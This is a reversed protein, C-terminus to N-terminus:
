LPIFEKYMQPSLVCFSTYICKYCIDFKGSGRGTSIGWSNKDLLTSAWSPMSSKRTLYWHIFELQLVLNDNINKEELYTWVNIRNVMIIPIHEQNDSSSELLGRSPFKHEQFVEPKHFLINHLDMVRYETHATGM